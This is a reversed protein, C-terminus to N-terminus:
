NMATKLTYVKGIMKVDAFNGLYHTAWLQVVADFYELNILVRSIFSKIPM